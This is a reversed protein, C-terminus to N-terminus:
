FMMSGQLFLTWLRTGEVRFRRGPQDIAQRYTPNAEDPEGPDVRQDGNEDVGASAATLFHPMDIPLRVPRPLPHVARGPHQAGVDGGFSAYAETETVGPHPTDLLTGDFDITTRPGIGPDAPPRTADDSCQPSGSLPEWLESRGRGYFHEQVHARLEVTVRQEGRPNEWAIQEFGIQM